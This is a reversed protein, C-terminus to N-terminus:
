IKPRKPSFRSLEARQYGGLDTIDEDFSCAASELSLIPNQQETWM